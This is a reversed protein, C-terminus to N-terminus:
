VTLSDTASGVNMELYLPFRFNYACNPQETWSPQVRVAAISRLPAAVPLLDSGGACGLASPSKPVSVNGNSVSKVSPRLAAMTPSSKIAQSKSFSVSDRTQLADRRDVARSIGLPPGADLVGRRM